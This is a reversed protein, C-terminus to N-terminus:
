KIKNIYKSKKEKKKGEVPRDKGVMVFDELCCVSVTIATARHRLRAVACVKSYLLPLGYYIRPPMRAKTSSNTHKRSEM